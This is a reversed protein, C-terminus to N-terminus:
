VQISSYTLAYSLLVCIYIGGQKVMFPNFPWILETNGDNVDGHEKNKCIVICLIDIYAYAM